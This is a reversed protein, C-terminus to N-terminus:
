GANKPKAKTPLHMYNTTSPKTHKGPLIDRVNMNINIRETNKILETEVQPTVNARDKSLSIRPMM